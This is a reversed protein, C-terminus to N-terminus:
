SMPKTFGGSRMVHLLSRTSSAARFMRPAARSRMSSGTTLSVLASM